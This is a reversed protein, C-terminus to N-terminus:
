YRSKDSKEQRDLEHELARIETRIKEVMKTNAAMLEIRAPDDNPLGTGDALFAQYKIIAATTNHSESLAHLIQQGTLQSYRM